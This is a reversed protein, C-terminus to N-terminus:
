TPRPIAASKRVTPVFHPSHNPECGPQKAGSSSRSTNISYFAPYVGYSTQANKSFPYSRARRLISSRYRLRRAWLGTVTGDSSNRNRSVVSRFSSDQWTSASVMNVNMLQFTTASFFISYQKAPIVNYAQKNNRFLRASHMIRISVSIKSFIIANGGWFDLKQEATCLSLTPCNVGFSHYHVEIHRCM